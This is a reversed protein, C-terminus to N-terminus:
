LCLDRESFLVHLESLNLKWCFKYLQLLMVELRIGFAKIDRPCSLIYGLYFRIRLM